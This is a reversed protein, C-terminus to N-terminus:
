HVLSYCYQRAGTPRLVRKAESELINKIFTEKSIEGQSGLIQELLKSVARSEVRQLSLLYPSPTGALLPLCHLSVHLITILLEQVKEKAVVLRSEVDVVEFLLSAKEADTGDGLMLGTVLVDKRRLSDGQSYARYFEAFHSKDFKPFKLHLTKVISYWQTVKILDEASYKRIVFDINECYNFSFGLDQEHFDIDDEDRIRFM